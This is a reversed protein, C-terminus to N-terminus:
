RSARDAQRAAEEVPDWTWAYWNAWIAAVIFGIFLIIAILTLFGPEKNSNSRASKDSIIKFVDPYSRPAVRSDRLTSDQTQRVTQDPTEAALSPRRDLEKLIQEYAARFQVLSPDEGDHDPHAYQAKRLFSQRVEDRTCGRAVGLLDYPNM